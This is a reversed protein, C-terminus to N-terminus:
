MKMAIKISNKTIKSSSLLSLKRLPSLEKRVNFRVLDCWFCFLHRLTLTASVESQSTMFPLFPCKQLLLIYILRGKTLIIQFLEMPVQLDQLCVRAHASTQKGSKCRGRSINGTNKVLPPNIEIYQETKSLLFCLSFVKGEVNLSLLHTKFMYNSHEHYDIFAYIPTIIAM